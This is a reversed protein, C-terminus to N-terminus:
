GGLVTIRLRVCAFAAAILAAIPAVIVQMPAEAAARRSSVVALQEARIFPVFSYALLTISVFPHM